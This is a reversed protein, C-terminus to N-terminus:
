TALRLLITRFLRTNGVLADWAAALKGSVQRQEYLRGDITFRLAEKGDLEVDPAFDVICDGVEIEAFQRVTSMAAAFHVLGKVTQTQVTATAGTRQSTVPDIAGGAYTTWTLVINSGSRGLVLVIRRRILALNTGIM